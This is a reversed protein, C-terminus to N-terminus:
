NIVIFSTGEEPTKVTSSDRLECGESVYMIKKEAKIIGPGEAKVVIRQGDSLVAASDAAKGKEDLFSVGEMQQGMVAARGSELASFTVNYDGIEQAFEVLRNAADYETVSYAKGSELSVSVLAVPLKQEGESNRSSAAKGLSSNYDSIRQELFATMEEETYDGAEYTEVSQWRVSGDKEIMVSTETPKAGGSSGLGACGTMLVAATVLTLLRYGIKKM